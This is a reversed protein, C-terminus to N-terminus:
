GHVIAADVMSSQGCYRDPAAGPRSALRSIPRVTSPSYSHFSFPPNICQVCWSGECAAMPGAIDLPPPPAVLSFADHPMVAHVRTPQSRAATSPALSPSMEVALRTCPHTPPAAAARLATIVAPSAPRTPPASDIAAPSYTDTDECASLSFRPGPARVRPAPRTAPLRVGRASRCTCAARGTARSRRLPPWQTSPAHHAPPAHARHFQADGLFWSARTRHECAPATRSPTTESSPAAAGSAAPVATARPPLAADIQRDARQQQQHRQSRQSRPEAARRQRRAANRTPKQPTTAMPTVPARHTFQEAHIRRQRSRAIQDRVRAAMDSRTARLRRIVRAGTAAPRRWRGPSSHAGAAPPGVDQRM